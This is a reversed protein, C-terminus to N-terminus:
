LFDIFVAIEDGKMVDVRPRWNVLQQDRFVM